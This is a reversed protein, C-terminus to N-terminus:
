LLAKRTKVSLATRDAHSLLAPLTQSVVSATRSLAIFLGGRWKAKKKRKTKFLCKERSSNVDISEPTAYLLSLAIKRRM